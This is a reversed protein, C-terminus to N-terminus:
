QRDTDQTFFLSWPFSMPLCRPMPIIRSDADLRAGDVHELNVANTRTPPLGFVPLASTPWGHPSCREQVDPTGRFLLVSGSGGLMDLEIRSLGEATVLEIATSHPFWRQCAACDSTTTKREFSHARPAGRKTRATGTNHASACDRGRQRPPCRVEWDQPGFRRQLRM